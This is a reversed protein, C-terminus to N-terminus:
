ARSQHTDDYEEDILALVQFRGATPGGPPTRFLAFSLM